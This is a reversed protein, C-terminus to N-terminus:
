FWFESGKFLKAKSVTTIKGYKKQIEKTKVLKPDGHIVIILPKNKINENYFKVIDEFTMNEFQPLLFKAPDENFGLERLGEVTTPKSRFFWKDSLATAKLQNKINTIRDPYLPMNKILDVYTDIVELVKDSQTGVYGYFYEKKTKLSGTTVGYATYAMSRKERIENMVLGAFGGAFYENFAAQAALKSKQFDDGIPIYMYVAAQQIESNPLFYIQPATYEVRPRFYEPEKALMDKKVPSTESLIKSVEEIPKQGAYYIKVAYSTAEQITTTLETNTVLPNITVEEGAAGIKILQKSPIRDIYPSKNGYQVYNWLASTLTASRRQESMRSLVTGWLVGEIARNDLRPMLTQRTVIEMVKQLNKEDGMVQIYFNNYDAGFACTAGLRGLERRFEQATKNPMTGAYNMLPAAYELKPMKHIGVGYELLLSFVDNKPNVTYFLDVNKYLEQHKVDNFDNFYVQMKGEPLTKLYKGYITEQGDPRDILPKINRKKIKQVKPEGETYSITLYDADFYKAAVEQVDEITIAKVKEELNFYNEVDDKYIFASTLIGMKYGTNEQMRKVMQLYQEKVSQFLWSPINGKKLKNIEAMVIKETQKDSDYVGNNLDMYPEAEIIIRGMERFPYLDAVVYGVTNDLNLKDLLGTGQGNNLCMMAFELKMQDPHGEKMGDFVWTVSPSYGLKVKVTQGATFPQPNVPVREPLPKSEMKGFTKEILPKVAEADFNGVLILAMNNPVYWDNFFKIVPSLAPNKLHEITGIVDRAYPTGKFANEMLVNFQQNGVNSAYMNFEEVVNELEAQFSRFVPNIFRDCNITLWKEMQHTPFASHYATYDYSTGANLNYSGIGQILVSFDDDRSVKGAEMSKENIKKVLEEKKKEDKEAACENYLRIIEEYVPKEKEWDLAGIEQTGKFLMHELYHALGTFDAPEDISGARVAVRGYVDTWDNDVWLYVKMGNALQYEQFGERPNQQAFITLSFAVAMLVSFVRKM